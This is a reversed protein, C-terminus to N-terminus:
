VVSVVIFGTEIVVEAFDDTDVEESDVSATVSVVLADVVVGAVVFDAIVLEDVDLAVVVVVSFAAEVVEFGTVALEVVSAVVADVSATQESELV